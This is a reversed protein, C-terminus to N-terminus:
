NSADGWRGALDLSLFTISVSTVGPEALLLAGVDTGIADQDAAQRPAELEVRVRGARADVSASVVAPVPALNLLTLVRELSM